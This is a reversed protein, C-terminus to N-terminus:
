TQHVDHGGSIARAGTQQVTIWRVAMKAARKLASREGLYDGLMGVIPLMGLARHFWRGRPRKELEDTVSWLAKGLKFVATAASKLSVGHRDAGLDETLESTREDEDETRGAAVTLSIDRRFLVKGLLRVRESTDVVGYEGAIACLLLGQSAAGVADSVPLRDAWVGGLGPVAAVLTTFRGVRNVWWETRKEADMRQWASTGPMQVGAVFDLVKDKLKRETDDPKGGDLRGALGFPDADRLGDVMPGSARVFPRLIAVIAADSIAEAM